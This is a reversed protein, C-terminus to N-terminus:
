FPYLISWSRSIYRGEAIQKKQSIVCQIKAYRVVANGEMTETRATDMNYKAISPYQEEVCM